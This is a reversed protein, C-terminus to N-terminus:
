RRESIVIHCRRMTGDRGLAFLLKALEPLRERGRADLQNLSNLYGLLLALLSTGSVHLPRLGNTRCIDILEAQTFCRSRVLSNPPGDWLSRKHALQLMGDLGQYLASLVLGGEYDRESLLIKASPSMLRTCEKLGIEYDENLYYLTEIAIVCAACGSPLPLSRADAEIFLLRDLLAPNQEILRQRFRLLGQAVADVVVVRTFGQNLCHGAIRGDGGGVDIIVDYPKAPLVENVRAHYIPTDLTSMAFPVAAREHFHAGGLNRYFAINDDPSSIPFRVVGQEVRAVEVGDRRVLGDDGVHLREGTTPCRLIDEAWQPLDTKNM